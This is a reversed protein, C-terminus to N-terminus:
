GTKLGDQDYPPGQKRIRPWSYNACEPHLRRFERRMPLTEYWRRHLWQGLKTAEQAMAEPTGFLTFRHWGSCLRYRMAYVAGVYVVTQGPPAENFQLFFDNSHGENM